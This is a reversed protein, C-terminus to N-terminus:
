HSISLSINESSIHLKRQVHIINTIDYRNYTKQFGTHNELQNQHMFIRSIRDNKVSKLMTCRNSQSLPRRPAFQPRKYIFSLCRGFYIAYTKQNDVVTKLFIDAKRDSLKRHLACRFLGMTAPTNLSSQLTLRTAFPRCDSFQRQHLFVLPCMFRYSQYTRTADTAEKLYSLGLVNNSLVSYIIPFFSKQWKIFFQRLKLFLIYLTSLFM